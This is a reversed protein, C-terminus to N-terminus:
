IDKQKWLEDFRKEKQTYVKPASRSVLYGTHSLINVQGKTCMLNIFLNVGVMWSSIDTM